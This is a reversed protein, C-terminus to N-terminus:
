DADSLHRIWTLLYAIASAITLGAVIFTGAKVLLEAPMDFGISGLVLCVLAIQFATNAKSIKLPDIDIPNGMLVAVGIGSLIFVDRSVVLITLWIPIYGQIGLAVFLSVILAKDALPDLYAGLESAQNFRKAIFGDVADSIGATIFLWFALKHWGVIVSYIILPVAVLRLITIINPITM